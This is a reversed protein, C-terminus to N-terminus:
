SKGCVQKFIGISTFAVSPTLQGYIWAYTALSAASLMVPSSMWCLLLGTDNMLSSWLEKLERNRARGIKAQWQKETATWKIQKMGQLAENVVALKADRAKMLRDQADSYRKSFYINIPLIIAMTALGALLAEWGLLDILFWFSILLKFTSSPFFYNVGAFDSIRKADVGILNVIAQRSQQLPDEEDEEVVPPPPAPEELNDVNITAHPEDKKAAGKVDKRRMSKRFVLASLQARIPIGVDYQSVWFLWNEVWSSVITSLGLALIWIWAESTISKGEQRKELIRLIHFLVFQPAFNGFAQLLSLFWQIILPWKHALVVKRLLSGKRSAKIWSETVERSRIKSDPRPLDELDLTKKKASLDLLGVVWGFTYRSLASETRMADVPEGNIFVAPRRPISLNALATLIVLALQSVRLAFPAIPGIDSQSQSLFIYQTL